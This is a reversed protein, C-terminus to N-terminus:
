KYQKPHIPFEYDTDPAEDRGCAASLLLLPPALIIAIFFRYAPLKLIRMILSINIQYRAALGVPNSIM